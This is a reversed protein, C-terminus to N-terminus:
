FLSLGRVRLLRVDPNNKILEARENLLVDYVEKLLNDFSEHGEDSEVRICCKVDFARLFQVHRLRLLMITLYSYKRHTSSLSGLLEGLKLGWKFSVQTITFKQDMIPFQLYEYFFRYDQLIHYLQPIFQKPNEAEYYGPIRICGRDNLMNSEHDCQQKMLPTCVIDRGIEGMDFELLDIIQNYNTKVLTDVYDDIERTLEEIYVPNKNSMEIKFNPDRGSCVKQFLKKKRSSLSKSDHRKPRKGRPESFDDHDADNGTGEDQRSRKIIYLTDSENDANNGSEDDSLKRKESQNRTEDSDGSSIFGDFM